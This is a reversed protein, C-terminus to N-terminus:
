KNKRRFRCSRTAMPRSSLWFSLCRWHPRISSIMYSSSAGAVNKLKTMVSTLVQEPKRIKFDFSNMNTTLHRHKEDRSLQGDGTPCATGPLSFIVGRARGIRRAYRQCRASIRGQGSRYDIEVFRCPVMYDMWRTGAAAVQKVFEPQWMAHKGIPFVPGQHM